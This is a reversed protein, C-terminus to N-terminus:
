GNSRAAISRLLQVRVRGASYSELIESWAVHIQSQTPNEELVEEITREGMSSITFTQDSKDVLISVGGRRAKLQLGERRHIQDMEGFPWLFTLLKRGVGSPFSRFIPDENGYSVDMGSGKPFINCRFAMILGRLFYVFVFALVVLLLCPILGQWVFPFDINLNIKQTTVKGSLPHKWEIDVVHEGKSFNLLCACWLNAQTELIIKKDDLPPAKEDDLPPALTLGLPVGKITLEGDEAKGLINLVKLTIKGERNSIQDLDVTLSNGDSDSSTTEIALEPVPVVLKIVGAIETKGILPALGSVRAIFPIEPSKLSYLESIKKKLIIEFEVQGPSGTDIHQLIIPVETGDPTRLGILDSETEFDLSYQGDVKASSSIILKGLVPRDDDLKLTKQVENETCDNCTESGQLDITFEARSDIVRYRLPSAYATLGAVAMEALINGSSLEVPKFSSILMIEQQDPESGLESEGILDNKNRLKLEYDGALDKIPIQVISGDREDRIEIGINTTFGRPIVYVGDAPQAVEKGQKDLLMLRLKARTEFLLMMDGVDRDFTLAIEGPELPKPFIIQDTRGIKRPIKFKEETDPHQMGSSLSKAEGNQPSTSLLKPLTDDHNTTAVTVIRHISLPSNITLTKGSRSIKKEMATRDISSASAVIDKIAELMDGANEVDRRGKSADGNFVSLLARRIGQEEVIEGVTKPKRDSITTESGPGILLYEVNLPGKLRNKIQSYWERAVNGPPNGGSFDGDSFIILHAEEGPLQMSEIRALLLEIQIYPTTKGQREPWRKKITTLFRKQDEKREFSITEVADFRDHNSMRSVLFRDDSRGTQFTSFLLQVGFAPLQIKRRMSGSDDFLIAVIRAQASNPTLVGSAPLLM